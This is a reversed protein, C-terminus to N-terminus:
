VKRKQFCPCRNGDTAQVWGPKPRAGGIGARTVSVPWQEKSEWLCRASRSSLIAGSKSRVADLDFLKCERCTAM